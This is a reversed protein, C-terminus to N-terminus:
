THFVDFDLKGVMLFKSTKPKEQSRQCVGVWKWRRTHRDSWLFGWGNGRVVLFEQSAFGYQKRFGGIFFKRKNKLKPNPLIKAVSFSRCCSPHM